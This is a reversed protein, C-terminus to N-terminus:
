KERQYDYLRESTVFAVKIGLNNLLSGNKEAHAAIHSLASPYGFLMKPRIAQIQRIFSDIKQASMEFAPILHTRLLKDRILKIKDQTGLEIPSGWIVIEPDGIDVDWWRTARWKAAVDHSVRKTGIYFILPEGSSGGTNFRSLGAANGAKFQDAYQRIQPKGTLPLKRLDNLSSTQNPKFDLQGFLQRYYPVHQEVDILFAKLRQLQLGKLEEPSLWQTQEMLKRIQVTDHKKLREHLPFIVHSTLQTYINM